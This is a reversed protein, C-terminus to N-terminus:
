DSLEFYAGVDSDSGDNTAPPPTNASTDTEADARADAPAVAPRETSTDAEAANESGAWFSRRRTNRAAAARAAVWNPCREDRVRKEGKCVLCDFRGCRQDAAQMQDPKYDLFTAKVVNKISGEDVGLSTAVATRLTSVTLSRNDYQRKIEGDNALLERARAAVTADAVTADAANDPYYDTVGHRTTYVYGPRSGTYADISTPAAAPAATEPRRARVQAVTRAAAPAGRLRPRKFRRPPPEPVAVLADRVARWPPEDRYRSHEPWAACDSVPRDCLTCYCRACFRRALMLGDADDRAPMGLAACEHRAHPLDVLPNTLTTSVLVVDDDSDDDEGAEPAPAAEDDSFTIPERASGEGKGPDAPEPASQQWANISSAPMFDRLQALLHPRPATALLAEVRAFCGDTDDVKWLSNLNKVIEQYVAPRDDFVLKIELLLDTAAAKRAERAAEAAEDRQATTAM